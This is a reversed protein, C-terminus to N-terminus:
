ADEGTETWSEKERRREEGTDYPLYTADLSVETQILLM